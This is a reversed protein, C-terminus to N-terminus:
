ACDPKGDACGYNQDSRACKRFLPDQCPQWGCHQTQEARDNAIRETEADAKVCLIPDVITKTIGFGPLTGLFSKIRTGSPRDIEGTKQDGCQRDWGVQDRAAAADCKM